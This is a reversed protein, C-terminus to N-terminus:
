REGDSWCWVDITACDDSFCWCVLGHRLEFNSDGGGCQSGWGSLTWGQAVMCECNGRWALVWDCQVRVSWGGSFTCLPDCWELWYMKAIIVIRIIVDCVFTFLLWVYMCIYWMWCGLSVVNKNWAQGYGPSHPGNGFCLSNTMAATVHEKDIRMGTAVSGSRCAPGWCFLCTYHWSHCIKRDNDEAPMRAELSGIPRVLSSRLRGSPRVRTGQCPPLGTVHSM